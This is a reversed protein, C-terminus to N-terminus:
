PAVLISFNPVFQRCYGVIVPFTCIQQKSFPHHWSQITAQKNIHTKLLGREVSYALYKAEQIGVACKRPNVIFGWGRSLSDLVVQVKPLHSEWDRSFIVIDELYM